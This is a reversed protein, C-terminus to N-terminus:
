RIVRQVPSIGGWARDEKELPKRAPATCQVAIDAAVLSTRERMLGAYHQVRGRLRHTADQLELRRGVPLVDDVGHGDKRDMRRVVRGQCVHRVTGIHAARFEVPVQRFPSVEQLQTALSPSNGTLRIAWPELM